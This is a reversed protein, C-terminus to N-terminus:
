KSLNKQKTKDKSFAEVESLMVDRINKTVIIVYRLFCNTNAIDHQAQQLM